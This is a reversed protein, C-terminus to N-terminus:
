IVFEARFLILCAQLAPKGVTPVIIKYLHAIYLLLQSMYLLLHSMYLLVILM